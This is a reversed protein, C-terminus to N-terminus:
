EDDGELLKHNGESLERKKAELEEGSLNQLQQVHQITANQQINIQNLPVQRGWREPNSRELRWAAATWQPTLIYYDETRTETSGDKYRRVITRTAREGRMAREISALANAQSESRARKVLERFDYYLGSRAEAGRQQWRYLTSEAVGCVLSAEELTLGIAIVNHIKTALQPTLKTPRGTRAM